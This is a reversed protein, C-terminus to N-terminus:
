QSDCKVEEVESARVWGYIVQGLQDLFKVELWEIESLREGDFFLTKRGYVVRFKEGRSCTKIVLGSENAGARVKMDTEATVCSVSRWWDGEAAFASVSLYMMVAVMVSLARLFFKGNM